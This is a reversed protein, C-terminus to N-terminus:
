SDLIKSVSRRLLAPLQRLAQDSAAALAEAQRRRAAEVANHLEMLEQDSLGHLLLADEEM